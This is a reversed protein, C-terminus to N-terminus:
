MDNRWVCVCVERIDKFPREEDEQGNLLIMRARKRVSLCLTHIESPHRQHERSHPPTHEGAVCEAAAIENSRSPYRRVYKVQFIWKEGAENLM